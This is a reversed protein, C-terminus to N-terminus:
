RLAQLLTPFLASFVWGVLLLVLLVALVKGGWGPGGKRKPGDGFENQVFEEYNFEDDPLDLRQGTAQDSWGTKWDSGCQPCCLARPNLDAGCQPCTDPARPPM